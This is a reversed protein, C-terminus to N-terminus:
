SRVLSFGSKRTTKGDDHIRDTAIYIAKRSDSEVSVGLPMLKAQKGLIGVIQMTRGRTRAANDTVTDGVQIRVEGDKSPVAVSARPSASSMLRLETARQEGWARAAVIGGENNRFVRRDAAGASGACVDVEAYDSYKRALVQRSSKTGTLYQAGHFLKTWIM